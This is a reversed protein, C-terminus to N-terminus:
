GLNVTKTLTNSEGGPDSVTLTITHAGSATPPSYDLTVDDGNPIATGDYSWQYSLPDAEADNSASANLVIHGNGLVNVSFSPQPPTNQNRLVVATDLRSERAAANSSSGPTGNVYATLGIRSVSAPDASNPSFLARTQGGSNNFLKDAVIYEGSWGSSPCASTDPVAAPPAATTWTYEQRYIKENSPDTYNLCYRVWEVNRTNQSGASPVPNVTQFVLNFASAQLVGQHAQPTGVGDNRLKRSVQDLAVRATEQADNSLQNARTQNDFQTMTGLTAGIVLVLLTIAVLTEMLSIGDQRGLRTM